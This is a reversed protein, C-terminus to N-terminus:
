SSFEFTRRLDVMEGRNFDHVEFEIRKGIINIIVYTREPRERPLRLSGPNIFLIDKVMEAGLVHSHGFCVIQAEIEEARYLLNMLSSKVSFLHGHTAFIRLGAVEEVIENEFDNGFDCNGRVVAFKKIAKDSGSLESDGCHIMLEVEHEHRKKIEELESQLGHSDSVILVKAM